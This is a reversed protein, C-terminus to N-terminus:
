TFGSSRASRPQLGRWWGDVERESRGEGPKSRSEAMQAADSHALGPLESVWCYRFFTNLINLFIIFIIDAMNNYKNSNYYKNSITVLERELM